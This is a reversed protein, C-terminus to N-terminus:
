DDFGITDAIIFNPRRRVDDFVRAIYLSAIGIFFLQVAMSASLGWALWWTGSVSHGSLSLGILVLLGLLSGLCLFLSLISSVFLPFMSYSTLGLILTKLPNITALIPFHTIGGARAERVYKVEDQRYGVWAVMGRLYPNRERLDLIHGVVRRSLLKFDGADVPIQVSSIKRIMRYAFYTIALKVPNEGERRSRVTHVVDAGDQWREILKPILEPPDQLDSDMYVVADGTAYSFGALVCEAVGTRRATSIVKVGADKANAEQLLRLSDDTSDDNVFVMEYRATCDKFARQVREILLPIVDAENRFSFVISILPDPHREPM